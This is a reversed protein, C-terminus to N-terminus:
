DSIEFPIRETIYDGMSVILWYSGPEDPLGIHERLDLNFYGGTRVTPDPPEEPPPPPPSSDPKDLVGKTWIAPEDRRIVILLIWTEPEDSCKQIFEAGIAYSGYMAVPEGPRFATADLVVAVGLDEVEPSKPVSEYSPFEMNTDGKEKVEQAASAAGLYGTCLYSLIAM